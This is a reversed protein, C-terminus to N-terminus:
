PLPTEMWMREVTREIVEYSFGRRRLFSGLKQRFAYYDGERLTTAKKRAARYAGEEEDIGSVIGEAIEPEVGKGKLELKLLLKGRPSFSEREEKWFHAFAVDDILGKGRLQLIADEIAKDDFGRLRLRMRVERESRPRYSLYRMAANLCTHLQDASKLEEIQSQTLAQGTYLHSGEAVGLSLGFAFEGDLFVSVRRGRRKPKIATIERM